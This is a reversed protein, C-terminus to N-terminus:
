ICLSTNKKDDAGYYLYLNDESLTTKIDLDKSTFECAVQLETMTNFNLTNTLYGSGITDKCNASNADCVRGLSSTTVTYQNNGGTLSTVDERPIEVFKALDIGHSEAVKLSDYHTVANMLEDDYSGDGRLDVSGSQIEKNNGGSVVKYKMVCEALTSSANARKCTNPHNTDHGVLYKHILDFSFIRTTTKVNEVEYHSYASHSMVVLLVAIIKNKM